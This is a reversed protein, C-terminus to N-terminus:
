FFIRFFNQKFFTEFNATKTALIIKPGFTKLFTFRAKLGEDLKKKFIKQYFNIFNLFFSYDIVLNPWNFFVLSERYHSPIELLLNSSAKAVDEFQPGNIYYTVRIYFKSFHGFEPFWELILFLGSFSFIIIVSYNISVNIKGSFSHLDIRFFDILFIPFISSNKEENKM